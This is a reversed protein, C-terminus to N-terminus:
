NNFLEEDIIKHHYHYRHDYSFENGFPLKISRPIKWSVTLGGYTHFRGLRYIGEEATIGSTQVYIDLHMFNENIGEDDVDLFKTEGNTWREGYLVKSADNDGWSLTLEMKDELEIM